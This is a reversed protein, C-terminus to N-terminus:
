KLTVNHKSSIIQKRDLNKGETKLKDNTILTILKDTIGNILPISNINRINEIIESDDRSYADVLQGYKYRLGIACGDIKPQVVM